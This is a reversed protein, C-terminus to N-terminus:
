PAPVADGPAEAGAAAQLAYLTRVEARRQLNKAVYGVVALGLSVVDILDGGKAEDPLRRYVISAAPKAVDQVDDDDPVWVGHDREEQTTVFSAFLRCGTRFGTGIAARLGAKSVKIDGTSPTDSPPVPADPPDSPGSTSWDPAGDAPPSLSPDAASTEPPSSPIPAFLSVRTPLPPKSPPPPTSKPFDPSEATQEASRNRPM